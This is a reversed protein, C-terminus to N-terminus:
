CDESHDNIKLLSQIIDNLRTAKEIAEDIESSDLHVHIVNKESTEDISGTSMMEGGKTKNAPHIEAILEEM